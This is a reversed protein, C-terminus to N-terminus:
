VVTFTISGASAGVGSVLYQNGDSIVEVYDGVTEATAVFNIRNEADAPVFVSNVIAGGYIDEEPSAITFNTTAFSASTRVKVNFGLNGIAPPLTIAVGATHSLVLESGSDAMTLTTATNIAVVRKPLGQIGYPVKNGNADIIYFDSM